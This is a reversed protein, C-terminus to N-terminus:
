SDIWRSIVWDLPSSSKIPDFEFLTPTFVTYPLPSSSPAFEIPPSLPPYWLFLRKRRCVTAATHCSWTAFIAPVASSTSEPSWYLPRNFYLITKSKTSFLGARCKNEKTTSQSEDPFSTYSKCGRISWTYKEASSASYANECEFWMHPM